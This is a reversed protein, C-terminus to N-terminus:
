DFRILKKINGFSRDKKPFCECTLLYVLRIGMYVTLFIGTQSLPFAQPVLALGAGVLMWLFSWLALIRSRTTQGLRRHWRRTVALWELASSFIWPMSM